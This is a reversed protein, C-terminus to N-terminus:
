VVAFTGMGGMGCIAVIRLEETINTKDPVLLHKDIQALIDERGFFNELDAIRPGNHINCPLRLMRRVDIHVGKNLLEIQSPLLSWAASAATLSAKFQVEDFARKEEASALSL